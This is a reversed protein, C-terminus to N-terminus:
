QAPPNKPRTVAAPSSVPAGPKASDPRQATGKATQVRAIVRDTIDLNRDASVLVGPAAAIDFIMTYGEEARIDDITKSVLQQIPRMLEAQRNQAQQELQQRRREFEDEKARIAKQRTEKAAPSLTLEAKNYENVLSQLSDGMRQIQAQYAALERQLTAAAESGGPAQQMILQSNLYAFRPVAQQAQAVGAAGIGAAVALAAARIMWRM